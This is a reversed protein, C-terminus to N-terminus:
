PVRATPKRPFVKFPRWSANEPRYELLALLDGEASYARCYPSGGGSPVHTGPTEVKPFTVDRSDQLLTKGELVEGDRPPHLTVAPWDRIPADLPYLFGGITQEQFAIELDSLMVSEEILFMGDRVRVLAKLYAGCSLSQGVDHALSRIYTGRSCEVEVLAVPPEWALLSIRSVTVRRPLAVASIGRRAYYYLPKGRYKVASFLPPKQLLEGVYAALSTEVQSRCLASTDRRELVSGAADYSDTSTGFEIQARYIKPGALFELLRTGYGLAIPLVGTATPDLTGGHGVRKERSWMRIRQVVDHSTLGAPKRVNLFGDM